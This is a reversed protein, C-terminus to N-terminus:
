FHDEWCGKPQGPHLQGRSVWDRIVSETVYIASNDALFNADFSKPDGNRISFLKFLYGMREIKLQVTVRVFGFNNQLSAITQFRRFWGFITGKLPTM